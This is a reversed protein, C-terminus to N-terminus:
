KNKLLDATLDTAKGENSLIYKKGNNRFSTKVQCLVTAHCNKEKLIKFINTRQKRAERTEPSFDVTM